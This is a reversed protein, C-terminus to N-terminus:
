VSNERGQESSYQNDWKKLHLLSVFKGVCCNSKRFRFQFFLGYIERVTYTWQDSILSKNKDGM